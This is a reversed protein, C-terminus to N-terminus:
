GSKIPYSGDKVGAQASKRSGLADLSPSSFDVNLALFKIRLNDQDIRGNRLLPEGIHRGRELSVGSGPARFKTVFFSSVELGGM